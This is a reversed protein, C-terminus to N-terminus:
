HVDVAWCGVFRNDHHITLFISVYGNVLLRNQFTRVFSFKGAIILVSLQQQGM